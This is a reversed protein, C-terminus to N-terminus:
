DTSQEHDEMTSIIIEVKSSEWWTLLAELDSAQAIEVKSVAVMRRIVSSPELALGRVKVYLSLAPGIAEILIPEFDRYHDEVADAAFDPRKSMKGITLIERRVMRSLAEVLVARAEAQLSIPEPDLPPVSEDGEAPNPSQTTTGDEVIMMNAPIFRTDEDFPNRGDEARWENDTIIGNRMLIDNRQARELANGRMLADMNYAFYLQKREQVNLLKLDLEDCQMLCIPELSTEYYDRNSEELTREVDHSMDYLKHPPIGVIRAVEVVTYERASLMQLQEPNFSTAVWKAGEELIGTRNANGGSHSDQWYTRFNERALEDWGPPCEVLGQPVAGNSWLTAAYRDVALGIGISEANSVIPSIGVDGNLSLGTYHIVNEPLLTKRGSWPSQNGKLWYTLRANHDRRPTVWRPDLLELRVPDGDDNRLIEIYSNGWLTLHVNAAHRLKRGTQYENPYSILEYNQHSTNPRKGGNDLREYINLPLKALDGALVSVAQWISALNLATIEDVIVGSHNAGTGFFSPGRWSSTFSDGLDRAKYRGKVTKALKTM